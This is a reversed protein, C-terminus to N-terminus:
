IAVRQVTHHGGCVQSIGEKYPLESFQTTAVVCNLSNGYLAPIEWTHRNCWNLKRSQSVNIPPSSPHERQDNM